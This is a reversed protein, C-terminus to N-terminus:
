SRGQPGGLRGYLAYRIEKDPTFRGPRQGDVGGLASTVSLTSRYKQGVELGEHGTRPRVTAPINSQIVPLKNRRRESIDKTTKMLQLPM